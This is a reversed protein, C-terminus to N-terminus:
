YCAMDTVEFKSRSLTISIGSYTRDKTVEEGEKNKFTVQKVSSIMKNEQHLFPARTKIIETAQLIKTIDMSFASMEIRWENKIRPLSYNILQRVGSNRTVKVLVVKNEHDEEVM